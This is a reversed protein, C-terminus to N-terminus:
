PAAGLVGYFLINGVSAGFTRRDSLLKDSHTLKQKKGDACHEATKHPHHQHAAHLNVPEGFPLSHLM